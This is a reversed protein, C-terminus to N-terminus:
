QTAYAIPVYVQGPAPDVPTGHQDVLFDFHRNQTVFLNDILSDSFDTIGRGDDNNTPTVTINSGPVAWLEQIQLADINNHYQSAFTELAAPNYDGQHMQVFHPPKANEFLTDVAHHLKEIVVAGSTMLLGSLTIVLLLAGTVAPQQRIDHLLFRRHITRLM